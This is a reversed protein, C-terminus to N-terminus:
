EAISLIVENLREVIRRWDYNDIVFERGIRGLEEALDPNNALNRIQMVYEEVTDAYLVMNGVVEMVGKLRTSIVSKECAMYEFLKLPVANQSIANHKFPILCVDMASIYEPVKTYPVTGAFIVKDEVGYRRVIERNEKLMGEEGVILLKVDELNRIAQYVPTLDVWERLVGVYGLVFCDELGLWERLDSKVKRFLEANVGNPILEFKEDPISYNDQLTKAIGTVKRAFVINKKLMSRGIWRGLPRLFKPIQPSNAIMEPLDDALDYIMPLNLKKAIYYGSILTNYNLIVDFGKSSSKLKILRPSLLEQKFPNIKKETIYKIEINDLVEKFDQYYKSTDVLGAKWWDNICIATIEHERSLYKIFHHLRNPATKRLDVISTILIRM